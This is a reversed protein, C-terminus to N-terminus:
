LDTKMKKSAAQVRTTLKSNGLSETLGRAVVGLKMKVVYRVICNHIRNKFSIVEADFTEGLKLKVQELRTNFFADFDQEHAVQAKLASIVSDISHPVGAMTSRQLANLSVLSGVRQDLKLFYWYFPKNSSKLGGRNIADQLVQGRRYLRSVSDSDQLACVDVAANMDIDDATDIDGASTVDNAVGSVGGAGYPSTAPGAADVAVDSSIDGNATDVVELGAEGFECGFLVDIAERENVFYVLISMSKWLAGCVYFLWVQGEVTGADDNSRYTDNTNMHEMCQARVFMDRWMLGIQYSMASFRANDTHPKWCQAIATNASPLLKLLQKLGELRDGDVAANTGTDMEVDISATTNPKGDSAENGEELQPAGDVSATTERTCEAEFLQTFESRIQGMGEDESESESESDIDDLRGAVNGNDSESESDSESDSESGIGSNSLEFNTTSSAINQTVVGNMANTTRKSRVDDTPMINGEAPGLEKYVM